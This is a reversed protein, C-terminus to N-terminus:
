QIRPRPQTTQTTIVLKAPALGEAKAELVLEGASFDAQVIVQALGHFSNRQWPEAPAETVLLRPAKRLGCKADLASVVISLRNEGERLLGPPLVLTQGPSAPIKDTEILTDNVFVRAHGGTVTLGSIEIDSAAQAATLTISGRWHGSQGKTLTDAAFTAKTWGEGITDPLADPAVSNDVLRFAWDAAAIVRPAPAVVQDPEHSRPDGNGMGLIRGPGSLTFTIPINATPVVLGSQETVALAVLAVDEGDARLNARDPALRLAAPAGTTSVSTESVQKGGSFGRALLVGPEYTIGPWDIYGLRPMPKRGLSRDNLFLEVEEANGDCRVDVPQGVRDPWNWHPQLHLV